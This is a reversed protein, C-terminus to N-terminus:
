YFRGVFSTIEAVDVVAQLDELEKPELFGRRVQLTGVGAGAAKRACLEARLQSLRGPQRQRAPAAYLVIKKLTPLSMAQSRQQPDACLAMVVDAINDCHLEGVNSLKSFLRARTTDLIGVTTPGQVSEFHLSAPRTTMPCFTLVPGVAEMDGIVRAKLEFFPAIREREEFTCRTWIRVHAWNLPPSGFTSNLVFKAYSDPLDPLNSYIAAMIPAVTNADAQGTHMLQITALRPARICAMMGINSIHHHRIALYTLSPLSVSLPPMPGDLPAFADTLDISTLFPLGDLSAFFDVPSIFRATSFRNPQFSNIVLSRLNTLTALSSKFVYGKLSLHHLALLANPGVTFPPLEHFPRSNSQLSLIELQPAPEFTIRQLAKPDVNDLTIEKLRRLYYLTAHVARADDCEPDSSQLILPASRARELFLKVIHPPANADIRGWIPVLDLAVRRWFRCVHTAALLTRYAAFRPNTSKELSEFIISLIDPPLKSIALLHTNKYEKLHQIEALILSADRDLSEIRLDIDKINARLPDSLFSSTFM